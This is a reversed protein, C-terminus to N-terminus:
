EAAMAPKEATEMWNTLSQHYWKQFDLIMFESIKSYPGPQYGPSSTGKHNEEALVRDQDNTEIWVHSLHEVDYDWGEVADEHVCWITRVETRDPGLPLIRFHISMDALMHHWNNPVRFMRVSGLDPTTLEGLLKKCAPKGDLTMSMAGDRFPLRICRFQVGGGVPEHPLGLEDWERVKAQMIDFEDGFRADDPLAMEVLSVLLEPHNSACHYCERNNEIVLKWNAEEVITSEHVIKTRRLEHPALYPTVSNRFREIDPPTDALSIYLLGEISTVHVSKLPFKEADFDEGMYRTAILKGSLDYTWQHYPCVLRETQGREKNCLRSGRHRCSNHFARIDGDHDRLIVIPAKGITLTVYDGPEPLEAESTAFMWENYFIAEMEADFVDQDHYIARPFSYGSECAELAANLNNLTADSLM